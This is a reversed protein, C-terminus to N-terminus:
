GEWGRLQKKVEEERGGRGEGGGGGGEEERFDISILNNLNVEDRFSSAGRVVLRVRQRLKRFPHLKAYTVDEEGPSYMDEDDRTLCFPSFPCGVLYLQNGFFPFTHMLNLNESAIHDNLGLCRAAVYYASSFSSTNVRQHLYIVFTENVTHRPLPLVKCPHERIRVVRAEAIATHHTHLYRDRQAGTVDLTVLPQANLPRQGHYLAQELGTVHVGGGGVHKTRPVEPVLMARDGMVVQRAWLDWDLSTDDPAWQQVMENAVRRRVMWGLGPAGHVRYLRAPDHATHPFANRNFANVCFLRPDATLLPATQQFFPILDPALDLDDELIIAKDAAPHQQFVKQLVSKVHANVRRTSGPQDDNHHETLPVGLLAALRRAEPSHGDVFISVPTHLGGPSAWLQALQRLVRPLRRATVVAVPIVERLAYPVPSAPRPSWPPEHCSCFAGYGDFARCFAAHQEMGPAAHWGCRPEPRLPLLLHLTIPSGQKTSSGDEHHITTLVESSVGAGKWAVMCWAEDKALREAFVSGLSALQRAVEPGLFKTFDPVGVLVLLRGEGVDRLAQGVQRSAEPQWTLFTETRM